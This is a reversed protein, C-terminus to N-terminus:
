DSSTRSKTMTTGEYPDTVTKERTVSGGSFGENFTKKKTVMKGHENIYRKTMTHRAGAVHPPLAPRIVTASTNPAEIVATQASAVGSTLAFVSAVTLLYRVMKREQKSQHNKL